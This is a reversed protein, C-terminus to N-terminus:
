QHRLAVSADIRAARRAAGITAVGVVVGLLVIAGILTAPDRPTVDFLMTRILESLFITAGIGIVVGIAALRAAQALVMQMVRGASAGLAVRVGIEHTRQRVGYAIVGHLGFAALLLAATAFANILATVFRRQALQAALLQEGTRRAFVPLNPDAKAVAAEIARLPPAARGSAVIALNLTSGQWLSQYIEPRVPADLGDERVDGVVGVITIWPANPAVVGRRGVFQFRRGVPAEKPFYTRALTQNVVVARPARDDDSDALLRGSVLPIGLAQFYGPTVAVPTAIALERQEM